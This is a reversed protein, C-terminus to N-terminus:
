DLKIRWTYARIRLHNWASHGAIIPMLSRLWSILQKVVLLKLFPPHRHVHVLISQFYMRKIISIPFSWRFEFWTLLQYLSPIPLINNRQTTQAKKKSNRFKNQFLKFIIYPLYRIFVYDHNYLHFSLKYNTSVTIPGAWIHYYSRINTLGTPM